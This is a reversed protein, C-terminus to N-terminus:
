EADGSHQLLICDQKRYPIVSNASEASNDSYTLSRIRGTDPSSGIATDTPRKRYVSSPLSGRLFPVSKEVPHEVQRFAPGICRLAQCGGM